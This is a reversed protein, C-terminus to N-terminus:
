QNICMNIYTDRDGARAGYRGAQDACRVARDQYTERGGPGSGSTGPINPLVQGTDPVYIPPPVNTARLSPAKPLPPPIRTDHLSPDSPLVPQVWPTTPQPQVLQPVPTVRFADNAQAHVQQVTGAAMLGLMLAAIFTRRM